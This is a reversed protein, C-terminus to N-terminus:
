PRPALSGRGAIHYFSVTPSISADAVFALAAPFTPKPVGEVNISHHASTYIM